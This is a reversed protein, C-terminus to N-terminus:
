GVVQFPLHQLDVQVLSDYPHRCLGNTDRHVSCVDASYIRGPQAFMARLEDPTVYKVDRVENPNVALDVDAKIFFIYDVQCVNVKTQTLRLYYGHVYKWTWGVNRWKTSCLPYPYPVQLERSSSAWAQHRARARIQTSCCHPCRTFFYNNNSQM